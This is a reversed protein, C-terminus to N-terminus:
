TSTPSCVAGKRRQWMALLALRKRERGEVTIVPKKGRKSASIRACTEPSVIRGKQVQRMRAISEESHRRGIGAQRIKEKAEDTHRFGTFARSMSDRHAQSKPRGKSAAALKARYETSQARKLACQRLKEITEKSRKVGIISGAVKAINFHPNLTDIYFQERVILDATPCQEIVTLEFEDCGHKSFTNQLYGSHHTGNKLSNRHHRARGYITVASGIYFRGSPIHRIRYIGSVKPIKGWESWHFDM